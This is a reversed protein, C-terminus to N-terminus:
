LIWRAGKTNEPQSIKKGAGLTSDHRKEVSGSEPQLIEWINTHPYFDDRKSQEPREFDHHKSHPKILEYLMRFYDVAGLRSHDHSDFAKALDIKPMPQSPKKVERAIIGYERLREQMELLEARSANPPFNIVLYYENKMDKCNFKSMCRLLDVIDKVSADGLNISFMWVYTDRQEDVFGVIGGGKLVRSSEADLGLCSIHKGNVKEFIVRDSKEYTKGQYDTANAHTNDPCKNTKGRSYVAQAAKKNHTAMQPQAWTKTCTKTQDLVPAHTERFCKNPKERHTAAAVTSADIAGIVMTKNAVAHARGLVKSFSDALHKVNGKAVATKSKSVPSFHVEKV